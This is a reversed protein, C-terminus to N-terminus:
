KISPAYAGRYPLDAFFATQGSAVKAECACHVLDCLTALAGYNPFM